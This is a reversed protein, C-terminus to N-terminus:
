TGEGAAAPRDPLPMWHTFGLNRNCADIVYVRGHHNNGWALIMGTKPATDMTQWEGPTRGLTRTAPTTSLPCNKKHIYVSRNVETDTDAALESACIKCFRWGTPRQCEDLKDVICAERLMEERRSSANAEDYYYNKADRLEEARKEAADLSAKLTTIIGVLEQWFGNRWENLKTTVAAFEDASLLPMNRRSNMKSAQDIIWETRALGFEKPCDPPKPDPSAATNM